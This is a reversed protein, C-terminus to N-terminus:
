LGAAEYKGALLCVRVKEDFYGDDLSEVWALFHRWDRNCEVQLERPITRLIEFLVDSGLTAPLRNRHLYDALSIWLDPFMRERLAEVGAETELAAYPPLAGLWPRIRGNLRPTPFGASDIKERWRPGLADRSRILEALVGDDDPDFSGGGTDPRQLRGLAFQLSEYPGPRDGGTAALSPGARRAASLFRLVASDLAYRRSDLFNSMWVRVDVLTHPPRGPDLGFVYRSVLARGAGGASGVLHAGSPSASAPVLVTPTWASPRDRAPRMHPIITERIRHGHVLLPQDFAPEELVAIPYLYASAVLGARLELAIMTRVAALLEIQALRTDPRRRLAKVAQFRHELLPLMEAAEATNMRIVAPVPIREIRAALRERARDCDLPTGHLFGEELDVALDVLEGVQNFPLIDQSILFREMSRAIERGRHGRYEMGKFRFVQPDDIGPLAALISREMPGRGPYGDPPPPLSGALSALWAFQADVVAHLDEAGTHIGSWAQLRETSQGATLAGNKSLTALLEIGGQFALAIRDPDRCDLDEATYLYSSLAGPDLVKLAQLPRLAEPRFAVARRLMKINNPTLLHPRDRFLDVVRLIPRLAAENRRDDPGPRALLELVPSEGARGDRAAPPNGPKPDASWPCPELSGGGKLWARPLHRLSDPISAPGVPLSRLTTTMSRDNGRGALLFTTGEIQELREFSRMLLKRRRRGSETDDSLWVTNGAPAFFAAHWLHPIRPNSGALLGHIFVAPTEVPEGVLREWYDKAEPGGPIMLAREELRIAAAYRYFPISAESYLSRLTAGDLTDALGPGARLLGEIMLGLKQDHVLVSIANEPSVTSATM